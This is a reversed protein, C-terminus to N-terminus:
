ANKIISLLMSNIVDCVEIIREASNIYNHEIKELVSFTQRYLTLFKEMCEDLKDTNPFGDDRKIRELSKVNIQEIILSIKERVANLNIFFSVSHTKKELFVIVDHLPFTFLNLIRTVPEHPCYGKHNYKKIKEIVDKLERFNNFNILNINPLINIGSPTEINETKFLIVLIAEILEYWTYYLKRLAIELPEKLGLSKILVALLEDDPLNYIEKIIKCLTKPNDIFTGLNLIENVTQLRKKMIAKKPLFNWELINSQIKHLTMGGVVYKAEHGGLTKMNEKKNPAAGIFTNVSKIINRENKFEM